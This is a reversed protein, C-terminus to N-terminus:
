EGKGFIKKKIHNFKVALNFILYLPKYIFSKSKIWLLDSLDNNESEWNAYDPIINNLKLDTYVINSELYSLNSNEESSSVGDLNYDSIIINLKKTSVNGLIITRLWFEWDSMLKLDERYLGYLGFISRKIITAQHAINAKYFHSLLLKEPPDTTFIVKGNDSVNCLGYVIEQDFKEEFIHKIVNKNVLFDGSNLFLCYEGSAKKIGKNMANFIGYDPESSWYHIKDEFSKILETSGDTSAGDIIIFEYDSFNQITVSKITKELGERNNLNITIISLIPEV